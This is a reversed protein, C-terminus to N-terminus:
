QVTPKDFLKEIDKNENDKVSKISHDKVGTIEIFKPESIRVYNNVLVSSYAGYKFSLYGLLLAAFVYSFTARGKFIVIDLGAVILFGITAILLIISITSLLKHNPLEKTKELALSPSIEIQWYAPSSEYGARDIQQFYTVAYSKDKKVMFYDSAFFSALLILGLIIAQKLNGMTKKKLLYEIIRFYNFFKLKTFWGIGM